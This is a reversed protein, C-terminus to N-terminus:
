FQVCFQRVQIIYKQPLYHTQDVLEPKSQEIGRDGSLTQISTLDGPDRTDPGPPRRTESGASASRAHDPTAMTNLSSPPDLITKKSYSRAPKELSRAMGNM